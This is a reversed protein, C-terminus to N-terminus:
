SDVGASSLEVVRKRDFATAFMRDPEIRAYVVDPALTYASMGYMATWLDDIERDSGGRTDLIAASGHVVISYAAGEHHALSVSPRARLHRIRLSRETSAIHVRGRLFLADVPAVFPRGDSSVTSLAVYRVGVLLAVVGIADLSREGPRLIDRAHEGMAAASADLTAQLRVLDEPTERM